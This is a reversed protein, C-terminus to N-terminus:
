NQQKKQIFDLPNSGKNKRVKYMHNIEFYISIHLIENKIQQCKLTSKPTVNKEGYNSKILRPFIMLTGGQIKNLFAVFDSIM